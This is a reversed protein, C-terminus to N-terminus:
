RNKMLAVRGDDRCAHPVVPPIGAVAVRTDPHLDRWALPEHVHDLGEKAERPESM